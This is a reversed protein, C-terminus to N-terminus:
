ICITRNAAFNVHFKLNDVDDFSFDYNEQNAMNEENIIRLYTQTFKDM